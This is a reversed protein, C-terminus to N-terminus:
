SLTWKVPTEEYIERGVGLGPWKRVDVESDWYVGLGSGYKRGEWHVFQLLLVVTTYLVARLLVFM